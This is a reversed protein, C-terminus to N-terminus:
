EGQRTFNILLIEHIGIINDRNYLAYQLSLRQDLLVLATPVLNCGILDTKSEDGTQITFLERGEVFVM